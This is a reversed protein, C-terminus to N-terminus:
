ELKQYYTKVLRCDYESKIINRTRCNGEYSYTFESKKTSGSYNIEKTLRGMEDYEYVNKFTLDYGDNSNKSYNCCLVLLTKGAIEKYEKRQYGNCLNSFKHEKGEDEWKVALEFDKTLTDYKCQKDAFYVETKELYYEDYGETINIGESIRVNDKYTFENSTGHTNGSNICDNLSILRGQKDYTFTTQGNMDGESTKKVLNDNVDYEYTETGVVKGETYYVEKMLLGKSNYINKLSTDGDQIELLPMNWNVNLVSSEAAKGKNDSSDITQMQMSTDASNSNSEQTPNNKCSVCLGAVVFIPFLKKM